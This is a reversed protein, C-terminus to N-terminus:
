AASIMPCNKQSLGIKHSNAFSVVVESREGNISSCMERQRDIRLKRELADKHRISIMGNIAERDDTRTHIAQLWGDHRHGM